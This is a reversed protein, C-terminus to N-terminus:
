EITRLKIMLEPDERGQKAKADELLSKLLNLKKFAATSDAQLANCLADLRALKAIADDIKRKKNRKLLNEVDRDLDDIEKSKPNIDRELM